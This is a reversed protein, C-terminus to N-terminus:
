ARRARSCNAASQPWDPGDVASWRRWGRWWAAIARAQARITTFMVLNLLTLENLLFWIPSGALISLAAAVTEYNTSLWSARNVMPEQSERYLARAQMAKDTELLRLMVTEVADDDASM